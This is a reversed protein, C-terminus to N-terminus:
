ENLAVYVTGQKFAVMGERVSDRYYLTYYLSCTPRRMGCQSMCACEVACSSLPSFSLGDAYDGFRLTPVARASVTRM